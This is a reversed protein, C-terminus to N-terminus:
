MIAFSFKDRLKDRLLFLLFYYPVLASVGMLAAMADDRTWLRVLLLTAVMIVLPVGFGWAVAKYGSKLDASVVVHDGVQYKSTDVHYVDILKDKSESANCHGAMKCSGCGSVQAIRVVIHNHEIREIMGSHTITKKM